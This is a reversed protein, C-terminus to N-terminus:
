TVGRRFIRAVPRNEKGKGKRKKEGIREEEPEGEWGEAKCVHVCVQLFSHDCVFAAM